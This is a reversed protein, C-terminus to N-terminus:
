RSAGPAMPARLARGPPNGTGPPGGRAERCFPAAEGAPAGDHRADGRTPSVHSSEGYFPEGYFPEGYPSAGRPPSEREAAAHEARRAAHELEQPTAAELHPAASLHGARPVAWFRRTHEGYWVTWWPLRRALERGAAVNGATQEDM